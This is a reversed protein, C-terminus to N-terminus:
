AGASPQFDFRGSASAECQCAVSGIHARLVGQRRHGDRQFRKKLERTHGSLQGGTILVRSKGEHDDKERALNPDLAVKEDANAQQHVEHKGFTAVWVQDPDNIQETFQDM